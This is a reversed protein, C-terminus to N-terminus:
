LQDRGARDAPLHRTSGSLRPGRGLSGGFNAVYDHPIAARKWHQALMFMEGPLYKHYRLPLYPVSGRLMFEFTVLFAPASGFM